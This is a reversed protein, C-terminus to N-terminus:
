RIFQQEMLASLYVFLIIAIIVQAAPLVTEQDKDQVPKAINMAYFANEM